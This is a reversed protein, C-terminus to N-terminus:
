AERNPESMREEKFPKNTYVLNHANYAHLHGCLGIPTPDGLVPTICLKLSSAHTSFISDLDQPLDTVSKVM